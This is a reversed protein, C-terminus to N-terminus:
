LNQSLSSVLILILYFLAFSEIPPCILCYKTNLIVEEQHAKKGYSKIHCDATPLHVIHSIRMVAVTNMKCLIYKLALLSSHFICTNALFVTFLIILFQKLHNHLSFLRM